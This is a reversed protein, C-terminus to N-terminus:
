KTVFMASDVNLVITIFKISLSDLDSTLLYFKFLLLIYVLNKLFHEKHQYSQFRHNNCVLIM